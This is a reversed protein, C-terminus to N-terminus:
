REERCNTMGGAWQLVPSPLLKGPEARGLGGCLGPGHLHCRVPGAGDTPLTALIDGVHGGTGVLKAIAAREPPRHLLWRTGHAPVFCFGDSVRHPRIIIVHLTRDRLRCSVRAAAQLTLLPRCLWHEDRWLVAERGLDPSGKEFLVRLVEFGQELPQLFLNLCRDRAALPPLHKGSLAGHHAEKACVPEVLHGQQPHQLWQGFLVCRGEHPPEDGGSCGQVAWLDAPLLVMRCSPLLVSGCGGTAGGGGV